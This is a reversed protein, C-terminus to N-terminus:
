DADRHIPIRCALDFACSVCYMTQFEGAAADLREACRRWEAVGWNGLRLTRARHVRVHHLSFAVVNSPFHLKTGTSSDLEAFAPAFVVDTMVDVATEM